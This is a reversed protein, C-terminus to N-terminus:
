IIYWICTDSGNAYYLWTRWFLVLLDFIDIRLAVLTSTGLFVFWLIRGKQTICRQYSVLYKHKLHLDVTTVRLFSNPNYSVSNWPRVDALKVFVISKWTNKNWTPWHEHFRICSYMGGFYCHVNNISHGIWKWFETWLYIFLLVFNRDQM